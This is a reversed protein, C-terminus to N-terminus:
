KVENADSFPSQVRAPAGSHQSTRADPVLASSASRRHRHTSNGLSQRDPASTTTGSSPQDQFPGQEAAQSDEDSSDDFTSNNPDFTTNPLAPSAAASSGSEPQEEITQVTPNDNRKQGGKVMVPKATVGRAVISSNNNNDSAGAKALQAPTIAPVEPADSPTSQPADSNGHISVVAARTRMAQQAPMPSVIANNRYVTTAVSSRLSPAISRSDSMVTFASDRLDAPMFFHQDPAAGPLPPVPPVLSNPTDPPSRNTVGPIYAIPIVNSARTLVTSAISHASKRSQAAQAFTNRKEPGDAEAAQQRKKRFVFWWVLFGVIALAAVGAIVGGAIAGTNPGGSGSHKSKSSDAGPNIPVCKTTACQHCSQSIM